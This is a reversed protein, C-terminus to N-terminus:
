SEHKKDWEIAKLYDRYVENNYKPSMCCELDSPCKGFKENDVVHEKAKYEVTVGGRVGTSAKRKVIRGTEYAVLKGSETSHLEAFYRTDSREIIKYDIDNMRFESRLPEM